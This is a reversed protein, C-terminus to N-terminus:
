RGPSREHDLPRQLSLVKGDHMIVGATIKRIKKMNNIVKVIKCQINTLM